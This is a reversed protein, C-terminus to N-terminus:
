SFAMSVVAGVILADNDIQWFHHNETKLLKDKQQLTSPTRKFM